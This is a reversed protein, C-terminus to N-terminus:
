SFHFAKRIHYRTQRHVISTFLAPFSKRAVPPICVPCVSLCFSVLWSTLYALSMKKIKLNIRREEFWFSYDQSLINYQILNCFIQTACLINEGKHNPLTQPQVMTMRINHNSHMDDRLWQSIHSPLYACLVVAWIFIKIRMRVCM